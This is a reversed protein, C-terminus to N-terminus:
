SVPDDCSMSGGVSDGLVVLCSLSERVSVAEKNLATMSRIFDVTNKMKKQKNEKASQESHVLQLYMSEQHAKETGLGVALQRQTELLSEYEKRLEHRVEEEISTEKKAAELSSRDKNMLEEEQAIKVELEKCREQKNKFADVLIHLKESM